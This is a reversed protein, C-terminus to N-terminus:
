LIIVYLYQGNKLDKQTHEITRYPVIGMHVIALWSRVRSSSSSEVALKCCAQPQRVVYRYERDASYIINCQCPHDVVNWRTQLASNEVLSEHHLPLHCSPLWTYLATHVHPSPPPPPFGSFGIFWEARAILSLLNWFWTRMYMNTCSPLWQTQLTCKFEERREERRSEKGRPGGRTLQM